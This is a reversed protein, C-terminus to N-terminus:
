SNAPSESIIATEADGMLAATPNKQIRELWETIARDFLEAMQYRCDDPSRGHVHPRIPRYLKAQWSGDPQKNYDTVRDLTITWKGIM